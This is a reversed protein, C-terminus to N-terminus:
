EADPAASASPQQDEEEISDTPDLWSQEVTIKVRREYEKTNEKFMTAAQVNAPSSDASGVVNGVTGVLYEGALTRTM